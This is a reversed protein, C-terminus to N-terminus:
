SVEAARRIVGLLEDGDIPKHLMAAAGLAFARQRIVADDHATILVVPIAPDRRKLEALLALGDMGPMVVDAVVCVDRGSPLAALLEAASDFVLAEHGVALLYRHLGRRVSPDDDVIYVTTRSEADSFPITDILSIRFCRSRPEYEPSDLLAFDV